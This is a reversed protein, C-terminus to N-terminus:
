HTCPACLHAGQSSNGQSLNGTPAGNIAGQDIRTRSTIVGNMAGPNIRARSAIVKDIFGTCMAPGPRM